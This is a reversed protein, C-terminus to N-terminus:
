NRTIEFYYNGRKLKGNHPMKRVVYETMTTRINFRNFMMREIDGRAMDAIWPHTIDKDNIEWNDILEKIVGFEQESILIRGHISCDFQDIYGRSYNIIKM